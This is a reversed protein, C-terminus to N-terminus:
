CGPLQPKPVVQVYGMASNALPFHFAPYLRKNEKRLSTICIDKDQEAKQQFPLAAAHCRLPTQVHKQLNEAKLAPTVKSLLNFALTYKDM